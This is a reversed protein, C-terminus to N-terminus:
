QAPAQSALVAPAFACLQIAVGGVAGVPAAHTRLSAPLIHLRVMAIQSAQM